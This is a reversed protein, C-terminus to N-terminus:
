ATRRQFEQYRVKLEAKSPRVDEACNLAKGHFERYYADGQLKPHLQILLREPEIALLFLDFMTHIDSRLLLGNEPHDDKTGRHPHIHAAELLDRIKCGTVLCTEDFRKLLANRFKRAGRRLRVQLNTTPRQDSDDSRYHDEDADDASPLLEPRVNTLKELFGSYHGADLKAMRREGPDFNDWIGKMVDPPVPTFVSILSPEFHLEGNYEMGDISVPEPYDKRGIFVASAIIHSEFQFLVVTGSNARLGKTRYNYIGGRARLANLFFDNQVQTATKGVFEPDEATMQLVRVPEDM